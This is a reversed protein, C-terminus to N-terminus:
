KSKGLFNKNKENKKMEEYERKSDLYARIMGRKLEVTEPKLTSEDQLTIDNNM